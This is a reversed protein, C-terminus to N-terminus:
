SERAGGGGGARPLLAVTECVETIVARQPRPDLGVCKLRRLRHAAIDERNKLLSAQVYM